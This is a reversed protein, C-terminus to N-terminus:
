IIQHSFCSFQKGKLFGNCMDGYGENSDECKDQILNNIILKVIM